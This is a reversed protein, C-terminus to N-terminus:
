ARGELSRLYRAIEARPVMHKASHATSQKLTKIKGLSVLKYFTRRCIRLLKLTEETTVLPPLGGVAEDIWDTKAVM